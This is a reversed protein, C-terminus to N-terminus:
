SSTRRRSVFRTSSGRSPRTGSGHAELVGRLHRRDDDLASSWAASRSPRASSPRRDGAAIAFANKSAVPTRTRLRGSVGARTRANSAAFYSSPLRRTTSRDVGPTREPVPAVSPVYQPPCLFISRIAFRPGPSRSRFFCRVRSVITSTAVAATRRAPSRGLRREHLDGVRSLDSRAREEVVERRLDVDDEPKEVGHDHAGVLPDRAPGVALRRRM